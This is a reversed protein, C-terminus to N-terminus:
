HSISSTKAKTDLLSNFVQIMIEPHTEFYKFEVSQFKRFNMPIQSLLESHTTVPIIPKNLVWAAGLESLVWGSTISNSSLLVVIINCKSLEGKLKSEWDEGASLVEPTFIHFNPQKSLLHRLKLAYGKDAMTYSLFIRLPQQKVKEKQSM